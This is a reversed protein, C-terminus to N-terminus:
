GVPETSDFRLPKVPQDYYIDVWNMQHRIGGAEDLVISPPFDFHERLQAADISDTFAYQLEGSPTRGGGMRM